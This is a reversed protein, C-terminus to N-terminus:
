SDSPKIQAYVLLESGLLAVPSHRLRTWYRFNFDKQLLDRTEWESGGFLPGTRKHSVNFIALLHGDDTLLSKWAKVVKKRNFPSIASYFNNNFILDFSSTNKDAYSFFDEQAFNLTNIQGYLQRAKEIVTPNNDIATVIHGQNALYAANHAQGCGPVLIRCKNIKLQYLASKLEPHYTPDDWAASQNSQYYLNWFNNIDFDPDILYHDPTEITAGALTITEDTFEDALNFMEAQATRSLVFPIGRQTLGHFRDWQDVSFQTLDVQEIYQYPMQINVKNDEIHIQRAVYPQDFYEVIAQTGDYHLTAQGNDEIQVQSLMDKGILEDSVRIGNYLIFYGEEDIAITKIM